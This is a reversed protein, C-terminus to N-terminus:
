PELLKICPRPGLYRHFKGQSEEDLGRPAGTERRDPLGREGRVIALPTIIRQEVFARITALYANSCEASFDQLSLQRDM